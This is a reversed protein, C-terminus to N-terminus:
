HDDCEMLGDIWDWVEQPRDAYTRLAHALYDCELYGLTAGQWLPEGYQEETWGILDLFALWPNASADCNLGWSWCDRVAELHDPAAETYEWISVTM